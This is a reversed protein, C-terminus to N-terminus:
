RLSPNMRSKRNTWGCRVGCPCDTALRRERTTVVGSCMFRMRLAISSFMPGPPLLSLAKSQRSAIAGNVLAGVLAGLLFTVLVLLTAKSKTTM